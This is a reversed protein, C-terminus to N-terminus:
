LKIDLYILYLAGLIKVMDFLGESAALVAGLGVASIIALTLLM